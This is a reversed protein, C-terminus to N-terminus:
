KSIQWRPEFPLPFLEPEPDIITEAHAIQFDSLIERQQMYAPHKLMRDPVSAYAYHLLAYKKPATLVRIPNLNQPLHGCHLGSPNWVATFDASPKRIAWIRANNHAQWYRDERYM